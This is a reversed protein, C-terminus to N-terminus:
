VLGRQFLSKPRKKKKKKPNSAPALIAPNITQSLSDGVEGGAQAHEEDSGDGDQPQPQRPAAPTPQDDEQYDSAHGGHGDSTQDAM